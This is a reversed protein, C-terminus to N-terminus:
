AYENRLSIWFLQPLKNGSVVILEFGLFVFHLCICNLVRTFSNENRLLDYSIHRWQCFSVEPSFSVINFPRSFLCFISLNTRGLICRCLFTSPFPFLEKIRHLLDSSSYISIQLEVNDLIVALVTAFTAYLLRFIYLLMKICCSLNYECFLFYEIINEVKM